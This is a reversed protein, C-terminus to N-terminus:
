EKGNATEKNYIEEIWSAGMKILDIYFFVPHYKKTLEEMQNISLSNWWLRAKKQNETPELLSM